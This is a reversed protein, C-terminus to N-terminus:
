ATPCWDSKSKASRERRACLIPGIPADNPSPQWGTSGSHGGIILMGIGSRCSASAIASIAGPSRACECTRFPDVGEGIFDEEERLLERM